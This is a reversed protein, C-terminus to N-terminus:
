QFRYVQSGIPTPAHVSTLLTPLFPIGIENDKLKKKIIGWSEHGNECSILSKSRYFIRTSPHTALVFARATDGTEKERQTCLLEVPLTEMTLTYSKARVRKGRVRASRKQRKGKSLTGTNYVHIAGILSKRKKQKNKEQMSKNYVRTVFYAQKCSDM